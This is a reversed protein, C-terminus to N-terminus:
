NPSVPDPSAEVPELSASTPPTSHSSSSSSPHTLNPDSSPTPHALLHGAKMSSPSPSLENPNM